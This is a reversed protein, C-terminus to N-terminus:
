LSRHDQADARRVPRLAGPRHRGPQSSARGARVPTAYRV